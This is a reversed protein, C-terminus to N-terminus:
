ESLLTPAVYSYPWDQWSNVLGAKVPNNLVYQIVRDLEATDRVLHDYSEKQWLSGERKMTINIERASVGKIAKMVAHLQTYSDDGSDAMATQVSLDLVVHVHNPMVCYCLLDYEHGNRNHMIQMVIRALTDEKLHAQETLCGDLYEDFQAFLRKQEAYLTAKDQQLGALRAEKELQFQNLVDAPLSDKLRFTVFFTGGIPQIHPLNRYYHTKM